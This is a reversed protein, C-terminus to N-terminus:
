LTSARPARRGRRSRSSPTNVQSSATDAGDASKTASRVFRGVERIAGTGEPVLGAAAQFVHVQREWVQLRCHVGAEALRQAMLEADAYIMEESGTQILTPPLGTLVGDVPSASPDGGLRTDVRAIVDTLAGVARRPFVACRDANAHALKGAPDLDTLPSLAATGAPRPLGRAVAEMAVMFTLFGGASDGMMVIREAPYGHDLLWRYGDIGDDVAARIPNRPIMRYGVNLIRAGSAAAIRSVMQRHSRVGCCIFAGGHLYLIAREPATAEPNKGLSPPTILEAGVQPLRVTERRTGRVPALSTGLYDVLGAPWPLQPHRAWAELFPKVTHRLSEALIRSQFSVGDVEERVLPASEPRLLPATTM